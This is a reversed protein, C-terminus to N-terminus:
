GYTRQAEACFEDVLRDALKQFGSRMLPALLSGAYEFDLALAIKCGADGLAIFDWAGTLQRFPGDVLQLVIRHPPTLTNRTTFAQTLGGLRLELRATLTSEERALVRASSCWAFRRPYAEVDNVLDFMQAPTYRVIASRRIEIVPKKWSL